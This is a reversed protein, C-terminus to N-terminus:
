SLMYPRSPILRHPKERIGFVPKQLFSAFRVDDRRDQDRQSDDGDRHVAAEIVADIEGAACQELDAEALIHVGGVDPAGQAGGPQGVQLDLVEALFVLEQDPHRLEDLAAVALQRVQDVLRELASEPRIRIIHDSRLRHPRLDAALQPLARHARHQDGEHQGQDVEGESELPPEAQRRDDGRNM